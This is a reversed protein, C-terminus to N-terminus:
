ANSKQVFVNVATLDLVCFHVNWSQLVELRRPGSSVPETLILWSEVEWIRLLSKLPGLLVRCLSTQSKHMCCIKFLVTRGAERSFNLYSDECVMKKYAFSFTFGSGRSLTEVIVKCIDNTHICTTCNIRHKWKDLLHRLRESFSFWLCFHRLGLSAKCHSCFTDGSYWNMISAMDDCSFEELYSSSLHAFNLLETDIAILVEAM